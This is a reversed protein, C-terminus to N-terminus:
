TELLDQYYLLFVIRIPPSLMRTSKSGAFPTNQLAVGPLLPSLSPVLNLPTNGLLSYGIDLEWYGFIFSLPSHVTRSKDM